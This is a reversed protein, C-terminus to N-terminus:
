EKGEHGSGWGGEAKSGDGEGDIDEEFMVQVEEHKKDKHLMTLWNLMAKWSRPM